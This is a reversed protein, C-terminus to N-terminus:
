SESKVAQVYIECIKMRQVVIHLTGQFFPPAPIPLTTVISHGSRDLTQIGVPALTEIRQFTWFWEPDLGAEKETPVQNREQPLTVPVHLQDSLDVL